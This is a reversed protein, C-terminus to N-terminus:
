RGKYGTATAKIAGAQTQKINWATAATGRLGGPFTLHAFGNAGVQGSARVTAGDLLEFETATANTNNITLSLLTTRVGAAQAAIIEADDGAGACAASHGSVLDDSVAYPSVVLKGVLDAVLRVADGQASVAAREATRAEAGQLLPNGSVAADHAAMGSVTGSVPVITTSNLNFRSDRLEGSGMGVTATVTNASDNRLWVRSARFGTLYFGKPFRCFRSGSYSISLSRDEGSTIEEIAFYGHTARLERVEGAALTLTQTDYPLADTLTENAM